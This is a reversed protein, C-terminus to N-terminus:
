IGKKYIRAKSDLCELKGRMESTPTEVEGLILYGPAALVEYLMGLVREQLQKQWYILVNCCFICDFHLPLPTPTTLDFLAFNVMKKIDPKVEYHHNSQIFYDNLIPPSLSEVDKSSYIGAEAEGLAWQSIDTAYISIDFDQRQQRFFEAMLIAISYPEEGRACATSWFRIEREGLNEKYSLLSPLVLDVVKRFSYANRFFGSAKITLDEALKQHEEPHNELFQLYELYSGSNTAHLRRELRRTITGRKYERFDYGGHLYVRELLSDLTLVDHSSIVSEM